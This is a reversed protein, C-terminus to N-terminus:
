LNKNGTLVSCWNCPHYPYVRIREPFKLRVFILSIVDSGDFGREKRM